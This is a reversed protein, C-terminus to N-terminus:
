FSYNKILADNVLHSISVNQEKALQALRKHLIKTVRVNLQGSFKEESIPEPIFENDLLCSEIYCELAERINETAKLMNDGYSYCSINKVRAYYGGSPSKEFEFVWPLAMYYNLDKNM